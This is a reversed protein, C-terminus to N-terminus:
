SFAIMALGQSFNSYGFPIANYENATEMVCTGASAFLVTGDEAINSKLCEVANEGNIRYKEDIYGLAIAKCVGYSFAATASMEPYSNKNDIVTNWSGDLNQLRILGNTHKIFNDAIIKKEAFSDDIKNLIIASACSFWGNGRGWLMGKKERENGYYGHHILGTEENKLFHYHLIFQRLAEHVYMKEGTCLGFEVLFLCGMFLTDAWIQNPYVNETCSHEFAGLESRPAQAMCWDAFDKCLVFYKQDKTLQYLKLAALVPATTNISKGPQGAALHSDIWQKVYNIYQKNGTKEYALYLGFLAVGQGWQWTAMDNQPNNIIRDCLLALQKELLNM